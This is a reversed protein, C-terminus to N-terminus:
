GLEIEIGVTRNRGGRLISGYITVRGLMGYKKIMLQRVRESGEDDLLRTSGSYTPGHTKKGALDCAVLEAKSGARVRKVKGADRASWVYLKGGEAAFWVPTAVAKGSKRFTTLQIFKESRLAQVDTM